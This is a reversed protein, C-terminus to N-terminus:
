WQPLELRTQELLLYFRLFEESFLHLIFTSKFPKNSLFKRVVILVEEVAMLLIIYQLM